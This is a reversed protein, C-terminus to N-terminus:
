SQLGDVSRSQREVHGGQAYNLHYTGPSAWAHSASTTGSALWGSNTGDGWTFMYQPTDGSTAISGGTSYTYSAGETGSSPGSPTSPSSISPQWWTVTGSLSSQGSVYLICGATKSVPWFTYATVWAQSSNDTGTNYYSVPAKRRIGGGPIEGARPDPDCGALQM